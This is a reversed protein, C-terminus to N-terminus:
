ALGVLKAVVAALNGLGASVSLVTKLRDWFLKKANEGQKDAPKVLQDTLLALDTAAATKESPSLETTKEIETRLKALAEKLQKEENSSYESLKLQEVYTNMSNAIRLHKLATSRM